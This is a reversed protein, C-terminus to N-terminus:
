SLDFFTKKLINDINYNEIIKIIKNSAGGEGYPNKCQKLLTQFDNSYAKKFADIILSKEPPCDIVSSAKIRGKQRDGINITGIRFSPVELLGSSSNGIVIDVYQLMSYYRLQGLSKFVFSNKNKKCFINILNFIIKNNTDANPMTFFINTDKLTKLVELLNKIHKKENFNSLTEPHYTVLLNKGKM